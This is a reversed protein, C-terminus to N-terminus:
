GNNKKMISNFIENLKDQEEQTVQCRAAAEKAEEETVAEWPFRIYSKASAARPPKIYPNMQYVNFCVWRALEWRGREEEERADALM